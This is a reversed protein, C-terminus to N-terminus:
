PSAATSATSWTCGGTPRPTTATRRGPSISHPAEARKESFNGYINGGEPGFKFVSGLHFLYPNAYLYRWPAPRDGAQRYYRWAAAPVAAAFDRPIPEAAPKLNMGLYINGRNDVGIGSDGSGAGNVLGARKLTGDPSWVDVTAICAHNPSRRVYLDGNPAICHGRLLTARVRGMSEYTLREAAQNTFVAM